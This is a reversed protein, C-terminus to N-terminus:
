YKNYYQILKPRYNPVRWIYDQPDRAFVRTHIFLRKNDSSIPSDM